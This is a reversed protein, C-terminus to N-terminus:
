LHAELADCQYHQKLKILISWYKNRFQEPLEDIKSLVLHAARQLDPGYPLPQNSDSAMRSVYIFFSMLISPLKSPDITFFAFSFFHQYIKQNDPTTFSNVLELYLNPQKDNSKDYSHTLRQHPTHQHSARLYLAILLM